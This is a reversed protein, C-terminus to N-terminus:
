PNKVLLKFGKQTRTAICTDGVYLALRCHECDEFLGGKL